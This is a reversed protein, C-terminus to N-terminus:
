SPARFIWRQASSVQRWWSRTRTAASRYGTAVGKSSWPSCSAQRRARAPGRLGLRAPRRARGLRRRRAAGPTATASGAGEASKPPTTWVSITALAKSGALKPDGISTLEVRSVQGLVEEVAQVDLVEGTGLTVPAGASTLKWQGGDKTLEVSDGDRQVLVQSLQDRAVESYVPKVWTRVQPDIAWASLGSVAMVEPVAGLRVATQRGGVAEGVLLAHEKGDVTLVVKRQYDEEAVGLQKARAASRAIPGTHTLGALKSLLENIPTSEAPYDHGSSLVWGEGRKVLDVAGVPPSATVGRQDGSSPFVQLRTVKAVDLGPLVPAPRPPTVGGTSSMVLGTIALQVALLGSLIKNLRNM